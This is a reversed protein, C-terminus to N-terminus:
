AVERPKFREVERVPRIAGISELFAVAAAYGHACHYVGGAAEIAAQADRQEPTQRGKETKLELGYYRGQWLLSLDPVGRQVGMAKNRAGTRPSRKGENPTHWFYLGPHGQFELLKVVVMQLRDEDNSRTM